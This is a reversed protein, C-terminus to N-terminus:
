SKIDPYRPLTPMSWREADLHGTQPLYQGDQPVKTANTSFEQLKQIFDSQILRALNIKDTHGEGDRNIDSFLRKFLKHISRMLNSPQVQSADVVDIMDDTLDDIPKFESRFGPPLQLPQVQRDADPTSLATAEIFKKDLVAARKQSEFRAELSDITKMNKLLKATKKAVKDSRGDLFKHIIRDLRKLLKKIDKLEQENLDGEVTISQEFSAGFNYHRGEIEAYGNNNAALGSYTTYSSQFDADVSLTVRDGQETMITIDTNQEASVATQKVRAANLRYGDTAAFSSGACSSNLDTITNM